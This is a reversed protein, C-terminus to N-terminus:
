GKKFDQIANNLIKASHNYCYEKLFKIAGKIEEVPITRSNKQPINENSNLIWSCKENLLYLLDLGRKNINDSISAIFNALLFDSATDVTLRYKEFKADFKIVSKIFVDERKVCTTVHEKDFDDKVLSESIILSESRVIEINMGVPLEVSSTYDSKLNLHHLVVKEVLKRCIFPNDATLRVIHDFDYKKAVETYRSLVNNESGRFCLVDKSNCKEEIIDDYKNTTTAVVVQYNSGLLQLEDIIRFLIPKGDIFPLPLLAKGPLRSSGMRAQIVLGIKNLQGVEM